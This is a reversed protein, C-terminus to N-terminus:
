NASRNKPKYSQIFESVMRDAEENPKTQSIVTFDVGKPEKIYGSAIATEILGRSVEYKRLIEIAKAEIKARTKPNKLKRKQIFESFMRDADKDPKIQPIVTFDVGEPEKIYGM